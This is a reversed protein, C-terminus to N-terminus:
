EAKIELSESVKRWWDERSDDSKGPPQQCIAVVLAAAYPPSLDQLAQVPMDVRGPRSWVHGEKSWLRDDLAAIALKFIDRFNNRSAFIAIDWATDSDIYRYAYSCVLEPIHIFDFQEGTDLISEFDDWGWTKGAGKLLFRILYDIEVALCDLYLRDQDPGLWVVKDPPM